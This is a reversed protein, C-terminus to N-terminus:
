AVAESQREPNIGDDHLIKTSSVTLIILFYKDSKSTTMLKISDVLQYTKISQPRDSTADSIKFTFVFAILEIAVQLSWCWRNKFNQTFIQRLQGIEWGDTFRRFDWKTGQMIFEIEKVPRDQFPVFAFYDLWRHTLVFRLHNPEALKVDDKRAVHEDIGEGLEAQLWNLKVDKLRLRSTAFCAGTVLRSEDMTSIKWM